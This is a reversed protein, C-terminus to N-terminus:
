TYGKKQMGGRLRKVRGLMPRLFCGETGGAIDPYLKEDGPQPWITM